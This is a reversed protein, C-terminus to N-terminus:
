DAHDYWRELASKSATLCDFEISLEEWVRFYPTKVYLRCMADLYDAVFRGDIHLFRNFHKEMYLPAPGTSLLEHGMFELGESASKIIVGYKAYGPISAQDLRQLTDDGCCAPYPWPDVGEDMCVLAHLMAQAHSNTSITVVSGSKMIGPELQELEYGATTIFRAGAGFALEWQKKAHDMWDDM